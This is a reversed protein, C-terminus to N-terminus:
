HLKILALDKASLNYKKEYEVFYTSGHIVVDYLEAEKKVRGIYAKRLDDAYVPHPNQIAERIIRSRLVRNSGIGTGAVLNSGKGGAKIITKDSLKELIDAKRAERYTEYEKRSFVNRYGSKESKFTVTCRCSDHRKYVDKPETGYEYIGALSSCWDCCNGAM